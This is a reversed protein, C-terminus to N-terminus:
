CKANACPHHTITHKVGMVNAYMGIDIGWKGADTGVIDEIWHIYNLRLPLTPVLRDSPLDVTLNFDEKLLCTTLAKLAEANKFDLFVKGSEDQTTHARFEPYKLALKLFSPKSNKYRNRPHM